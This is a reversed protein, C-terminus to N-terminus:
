DEKTGNEFADMPLVEEQVVKPKKPRIYKQKYQELKREDDASLKNATPQLVVPGKPEAIGQTNSERPIVPSFRAQTPGRQNERRSTDDEQKYGEMLLKTTKNRKYELYFYFLAIFVVAILILYQIM